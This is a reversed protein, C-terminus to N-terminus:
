GGLSSEGVKLDKVASAGLVYRPVTRHKFLVGRKRPKPARNTAQVAGAVSGTKTYYM